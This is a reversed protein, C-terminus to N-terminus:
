ERVSWLRRSVCPPGPRHGPGRNKHGIHRLWDDDGEAAGGDPAGHFTREDVDARVVEGALTTVWTSSRRGWSSRSVMSSRMQPHPRGPPSCPKLRPRTMLMRVRSLTGPVVTVLYQADDSWVVRIAACAIRAPSPSTNRLTPTSHTVRYMFPVLSMDCHWFSRSWGPLASPKGSM